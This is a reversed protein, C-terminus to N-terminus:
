DIRKFESVHITMRWKMTVQREQAATKATMTKVVGQLHIWGQHYCTPQDATNIKATMPMKKM